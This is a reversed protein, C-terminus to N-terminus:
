NENFSQDIFYLIIGSIISMKLVGPSIFSLYVLTILLYGLLNKYPRYGTILKFFISYICYVLFPYGFIGWKLFQNAINSHWIYKYNDKNFPGSSYENSYVSQVYEKWTNGIGKGIIITLDSLSNFIFNFFEVRRLSWGDVKINSFFNDSFILFTPVLHMVFFINFFILIFFFKSKQFFKNLILFLIAIYISSLYYFITGLSSLDYNIFLQLILLFFIILKILTNFNGFFLLSVLLPPVIENKFIVLNFFRSQYQPTFFNSIILNDFLSGIFVLILIALLYNINFRNKPFFNILILYTILSYILIKIDFL